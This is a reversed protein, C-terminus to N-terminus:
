GAPPLESLCKTLFHKSHGHSDWDLIRGVESYGLRAYFEPSQYSMTDVYSFRCGRVWAQREAEFILNREIGSRRREPAVAVVQIRLWSLSTDGILGGVISQGERAFLSLPRSAGRNMAAVFEPSAAANFDRLWHYVIERATDSPASQADIRIMRKKALTL